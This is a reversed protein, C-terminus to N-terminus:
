NLRRVETDLTGDNYLHLWRYGPPLEDFTFDYEHPKFQYCTAPTAFIDVGRHQQYFEQHIHGHLITKAHPFPAIAQWFEDANILIHQDLWHSDVPVVHHHLCIMAPKHNNTLQQQLWRLDETKLWGSVKGSSDLLIIQWYETEIVHQNLLRPDPQYAVLKKQHFPLGYGVEDTVDHNGSICAFPINTADLVRFIDDYLSFDMENILDGTVLILDYNKEEQLAQNLICQFSQRCDRSVFNNKPDNLLHLDTVQLIKLCSKQTTRSSLISPPYSQPCFSSM